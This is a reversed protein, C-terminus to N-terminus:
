SSCASKQMCYRKEAYYSEKLVSLLFEKLFDAILCRKKDEKRFTNFPFINIINTVKERETEGEKGKFDQTM